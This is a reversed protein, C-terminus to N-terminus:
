REQAKSKLMLDAEGNVLAYHVKSRILPALSKLKGILFANKAARWEMYLFLFQGKPFYSVFCFLACVFM